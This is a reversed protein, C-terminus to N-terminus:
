WFHWIVSIIGQNNNMKSKKLTSLTLIAGLDLHRYCFDISFAKDVKIQIGAGINWLFNKESRLELKTPSASPQSVHSTNFKATGIGATVYPVILKSVLGAQPLTFDKYLNLMYARTRDRLQQSTSSVKFESKQMNLEGRFNHWPFKYGIGFGIMNNVMPRKGVGQM